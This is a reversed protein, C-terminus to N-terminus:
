IIRSRFGSYMNVPFLGLKCLGYECEEHITSHPQFNHPTTTFSRTSTVPARNRHSQFPACPPSIPDISSGPSTPRSSDMDFGRDFVSSNRYVSPPSSPASSPAFESVQGGSQMSWRHSPAAPITVSTKSLIANATEGARPRPSQTRRPPTFISSSLSTRKKKQRRAEEKPAHYHHHIHLEQSVVPSPKDDKPEKESLEVRLTQADELPQHLLLQERLAQVEDNSNMLMERLEVIGLQLNANDQLIDKVFHSVVNSGNHGKATLAAAGKLRGAATDLEREVARRREMRGLVEVHREREERAEKEIHELQDQLLSLNREAKKWRQVASREQAETTSVTKQLIAQEQDLVMLQCELDQTRAALGDLRRVEQQASHLTAELSKIHAESEGVITNTAELQDLLARNEASKKANEDELYRKDQELEEIRTNLENRDLQADLMYQEHRLLLAQLAFTLSKCM